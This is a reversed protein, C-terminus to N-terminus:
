KRDNYKQNLEALHAEGDYDELIGSSDGEEILNRLRQIKEEESGALKKLAANVVEDIDKYLGSQIMGEIIGLSEQNLNVTASILSM